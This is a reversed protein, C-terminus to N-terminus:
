LPPMPACLLAVADVFDGQRGKLGIAWQGDPCFQVQPGTGVPFNFGFNLEDFGSFTGHDCTMRVFAMLHKGLFFETNFTIGRVFRDRTCELRLLSGGGSAGIVPGENRVPPAVRWNKRPPISDVTQFRECLLQMNDIVGGAAGQLGVWFQGPPCFVRFFSGGQGGQISGEFGQGSAPGSIVLAAIAALVALKCTERKRPNRRNMAAM